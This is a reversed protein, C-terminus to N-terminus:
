ISKIIRGIKKGAAYYTYKNTFEKKGNECLNYYLDKDYFIRHLANLLSDKDKEIVLGNYENIVYDDTVGHSKTIVVPVGMNMAHLLVLQGAAIKDDDLAIVVARANRMYRLMDKGFIDKHIEINKRSEVNLTDCAIVLHYKTDELANILFSYDRNSRGTSFLYNQKKLSADEFEVPDYEIAGCQAFDFIKEDIGFIDKYLKAESQTTLIIKDVYKSTIAYKVFKYFLKGAIGNKPKYIFTMIVLRYKKKVHLLRSLFAIAIGYFQQWCLVTKGEYKSSSLVTKIAVTFFKIYRKLGYIKNNEYLAVDWKENTTEELGKVFGDAEEYDSDIILVNESM